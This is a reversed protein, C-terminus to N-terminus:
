RNALFALLASIGMHAFSAMTAVFGYGGFWGLM